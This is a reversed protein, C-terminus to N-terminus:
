RCALRYADLELHKILTELGRANADACVDDARANEEGVDAYETQFVPKGADIFPALADCEDFLFCEEDLSWDFADLLDPIQALDNKLGISLGRAHAEESLFRNFDLQDDGTLDFGSDNAYGDVNDPEVGDCTKTVAEDLRAQLIGRVREDRVDLWREGPWGDLDNGIAADPFQSADNRWDEWSGASFYCIVIRGADHLAAIADQTSDFLDIDYMAVDFSTDIAGTLQWQWTTNSDPTWWSEGESEAEAESGADSGGCASTAATIAGFVLWAGPRM